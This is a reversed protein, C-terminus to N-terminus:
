SSREDKVVWESQGGAVLSGRLGLCFQNGGFLRHVQTFTM